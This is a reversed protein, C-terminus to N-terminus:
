RGRRPDNGAPDHSPGKVQRPVGRVSGEDAARINLTNGDTGQATGGAGGAATTPNGSSDFKLFEGAGPAVRVGKLTGDAQEQILEIDKNM